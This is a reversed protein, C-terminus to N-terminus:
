EEDDSDSVRPHLTARLRRAIEETADAFERGPQPSLACNLAELPCGPDYSVPELEFDCGGDELPDRQYRLGIGWRLGAAFSRTNRSVLPTFVVLGGGVGDVRIFGAEAFVRNIGNICAEGDISGSVRVSRLSTSYCGSCALLAFCLPLM